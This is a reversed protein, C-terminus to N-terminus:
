SCTAVILRKMVSSSATNQPDCVALLEPAALTEFAFTAMARAAESALGRHWHERRLRWGTELPNAPDPEAAVDHRLHQVCGAGVIEGSTGDVFSWWSYGTTAWRRKVKEVMARTEDLTEARGSIYRMVEPDANMAHLGAIHAEDFPELRLRPTILTTM